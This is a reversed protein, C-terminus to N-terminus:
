CGSRGRQASDLWYTRHGSRPADNASARLRMAGAVSRAVTPDRLLSGICHALRERRWARVDDPATEGIRLSPGEPADVM